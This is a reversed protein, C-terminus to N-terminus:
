DVKLYIATYRDPKEIGIRLRKGERAVALDRVKPWVIRAATVNLRAADLNIEVPPTPRMEGKTALQMADLVQVLILGKELDHFFSGHVFESFPSTRLEALPSQVLKGILWPIWTQIWQARWAMAWFIPAGIYVSQGRGFRNFVVAAGAEGPGPPIPGWGVWKNNPVDEVLLPLRYSM